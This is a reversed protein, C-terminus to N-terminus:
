RRGRLLLSLVRAFASGGSSSASEGLRRTEASSPRLVFNTLISRPWLVFVFVYVRNREAEFLALDGYDSNSCRKMNVKFDLTAPIPTDNDLLWQAAENVILNPNQEKPFTLRRKSFESRAIAVYGKGCSLLDEPSVAVLETGEVPLADIEVVSESGVCHVFGALNPDQACRVSLTDTQDLSHPQGRCVPRILCRWKEGRKEVAQPALILPHDSPVQVLAYCVYWWLSSIPDNHDASNYCLTSTYCQNTRHQTSWPHPHCNIRETIPFLSFAADLRTTRLVLHVLNHISNNGM